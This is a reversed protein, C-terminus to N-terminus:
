RLAIEGIYRKASESMLQDRSSNVQKLANMLQDSEPYGRAVHPIRSNPKEDLFKKLADAIKTERNSFELEVQDTLWLSIKGYNQLVFVKELEGFQRQFFPLFQAPHKYRHLSEYEHSQFHIFSSLNRVGQVGDICSRWRSPIKRSTVFLIDFATLQRGSWKLLM